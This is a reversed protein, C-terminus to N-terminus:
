GRVVLSVSTGSVVSKRDLPSSFLLSESLLPSRVRILGFWHQKPLIPTTPGRYKLCLSNSYGPFTLRLPHYDRILLRQILYHYGSYTPARSVRISNPPVM